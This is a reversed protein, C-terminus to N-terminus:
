RQLSHRAEKLVMRVFVPLLIVKRWKCPNLILRWLWELRMKRLFYPARKVRGSLVDFSGGVGIAVKANLAYLNRSIFIEQKPMGMGVFLIDPQSNRIREVILPEEKMSFFGHFTGVINAGPYKACLKERAIEAVGPASGLLFLRYGKEASLRCLEEVLDVGSVREPLPERLKRSAWLVGAGDATVLSANQVISLFDADRNALVLASADATVVHRPLGERVFQEIQECTETMTLADVGVGLIWVKRKERVNKGTEWSSDGHLASIREQIETNRM